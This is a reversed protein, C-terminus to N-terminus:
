CDWPPGVLDICTGFSGKTEHDRIQTGSASLDWVGVRGSESVGALYQGDGSLAIAWPHVDKLTATSKPNASISGREHICSHRIQVQLRPMQRGIARRATGFRSIEMLDPVSPALAM